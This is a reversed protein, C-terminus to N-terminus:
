QVGQGPPRGQDLHASATQPIKQRAQRSASGGVRVDTNERLYDAQIRLKERAWLDDHDLFALWTGRAVAAGNNRSTAIGSNEQELACVDEQARLWEGTGDTSGDNVVVIEFDNFTQNRVSEVTEKLLDLRNFTPIIVSIFPQIEPEM